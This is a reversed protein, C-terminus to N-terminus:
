NILLASAGRGFAAADIHLASAPVGEQALEGAVTRARRLGLDLAVLQADPQDSSADGYGTIVIAGAGRRASLAHLAGLSDRGLQDSGPAFGLQTGRAAAPIYAPVPPAATPQPLAAVGEFAAPDPPAQAVAPLSVGSDATRGALVLSGGSPQPTIGPGTATSAAQTLPGAAAVGSASPAGPASATTATPARVAPASPAPAMTASPAPGVSASRAPGISASRAPGISASRAPGISASRAPSVSPALTTPAPPPEAAVLTANAAEAAPPNAALHPPPVVVIPNRAARRVAAEREAALEERLRDRTLADPLPPRPPTTGLQPYPLNQGPPPPRQEAIAGGQLGHWWAVPTQVPDHACGGLALMLLAALMPLAVTLAGGDAPRSVGDQQGTQRDSAQAPRHPAPKRPTNDATSQPVAHVM